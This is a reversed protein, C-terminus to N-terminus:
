KRRWHDPPERLEDRLYVLNDLLEPTENQEVIKIETSTEFEDPFDAGVETDAVQIDEIDEPSPPESFHARLKVIRHERDVCFSYALLKTPTQGGLARMASLLVRKELSTASRM